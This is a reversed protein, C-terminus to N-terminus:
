RRRKDWDWMSYDQSLEMSTLEEFREETPEGFYQRLKAVLKCRICTVCDIPHITPGECMSFMCETRELVDWCENLLIVEHSEVETM